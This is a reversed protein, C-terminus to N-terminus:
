LFRVALQRVPFQEFSRFTQQLRAEPPGLFLGIKAHAAQAAPASAPSQAHPSRFRRPHSAFPTPTGQL